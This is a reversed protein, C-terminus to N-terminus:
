NQVIKKNERIIGTAGPIITNTIGEIHPLIDAATLDLCTIIICNGQYNWKIATIALKDLARNEKLCYNINNVITLNDERTTTNTGPLFCVVLHTTDHSPL